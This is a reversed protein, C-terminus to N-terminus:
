TFLLYEITSASGFAIYCISIVAFRSGTPSAYLFIIFNKLKIHFHNLIITHFLFNYTINYIYIYVYIYLFVKVYVLIFYILYGGLALYYLASPTLLCCLFATFCFALQFVDYQLFLSTNLNTLGYDFFSDIIKILNTALFYQKFYPKM